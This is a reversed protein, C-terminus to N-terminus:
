VRYNWRASSQPKHGIHERGLALSGLATDYGYGCDFYETCTRVVCHATRVSDPLAAHGLESGRGGFKAKRIGNEAFILLFSAIINAILLDERTEGGRPDARRAGM